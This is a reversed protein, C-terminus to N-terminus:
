WNSLLVCANERFKVFCIYIIWYKPHNPKKLHWLAELCSKIILWWIDIFFFFLFCGISNTYRQFNNQIKGYWSRSKWVMPILILNQLLNNSSYFLSTQNAFLRVLSSLHYSIDNIYIPFTFSGVCCQVINLDRLMFLAELCSKIILWWIDIFFFFLFFGV